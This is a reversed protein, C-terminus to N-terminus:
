EGGEAMVAIMVDRPHEKRSGAIKQWNALTDLVTTAENYSLDGTTGPLDRGTIHEAVARAQDKQDATFAFVEQLITWLATLQGGKGRTATGREDPDFPAATASADGHSPPTRAGDAPMTPGPPEEDEGPLPPLSPDPGESHLSDTRQSGSPKVRDAGMGRDEERAEGRRAGVGTEAARQRRQATRQAPKPSEASQDTTDTLQDLEGDELEEASYPMGAIVDAFKRRALRVSARAYLKDQPYPHLQIGARKAQDANFSAEAWEAEGKRRGRLMVRTDTVEVDVWEHGKSQILARMLLASLGTKGKILHINALGTMPPVGLERATLIAAAVAPISGRLGDPVFPSDAIAEALGVVEHLVPIWDDFSHTIAVEAPAHGNERVAIETTSM